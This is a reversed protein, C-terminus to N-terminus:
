MRFPLAADDKVLRNSISQLVNLDDVTFMEPQAQLFLSLQTVASQAVSSNTIAPMVDDHLVTPVPPENEDDDPTALPEDHMPTAEPPEKGYIMVHLARWESQIQQRTNEALVADVDHGEEIWISPVWGAKRWHCLLVQEPAITPHVLSESLMGDADHAEMVSSLQWKLHALKYQLQFLRGVGMNIPSPCKRPLFFVTTHSLQIRTAQLQSAATPRGNLCHSPTQDVFCIAHRALQAMKANFHLMYKSFLEKGMSARPLVDVHVYESANMMDSFQAAETSKRICAMATNESGVMNTMLGVVLRHGSTTASSSSGGFCLQVEDFHFIDDPKNSNDLILKQILEAWNDTDLDSPRPLAKTPTPMSPADSSATMRINHRRKFNQVWGNSIKFDEEKINYEERLREAHTTLIADSLRGGQARVQQLLLSLGHELAEFKGGRVRKRSLLSPDMALWKDKDKLTKTVNLRAVRRADPDELTRNYEDAIQQHTWKDQLQYIECIRKKEALSLALRTPKKPETTM